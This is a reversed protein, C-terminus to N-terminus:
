HLFIVKEKKRSLSCRRAECNDTMVPAHRGTLQMSDGGVRPSVDTWGRPVHRERIKLPVLRM